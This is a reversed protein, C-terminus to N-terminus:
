ILFRVQPSGPLLTTSLHSISLYKLNPWTKALSDLLEPTAPGITSIDLFHLHSALMPNHFLVNPIRYADDRLYIKEIIRRGEIARQLFPMSGTLSRLKPLKDTPISFQVDDHGLVELQVLETCLNVLEAIIHTYWYPVNSVGLKKLSSLRPLISPYSAYLMEGDFKAATLRLSTCLALIELLYSTTTPLRVIHEDQSINFSPPILVEVQFINNPVTFELMSYIRLCDADLSDEFYHYKQTQWANREIYESFTITKINSFGKLLGLLAAYVESWISILKYALLSSTHQSVIAARHKGLTPACTNTNGSALFTPIEVWNCIVAHKVFFALNPEKKLAEIRSQVSLLYAFHNGLSQVSHRTSGRFTIKRFVLSVLCSRIHRCTSSLHLIDTGEM